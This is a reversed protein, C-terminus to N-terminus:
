RVVVALGRSHGSMWQGSRGGHYHWRVIYRGPRPLSVLRSYRGAVPVTAVGLRHWGTAGAPRYEAVVPRRDLVGLTEGTLRFSGGAPVALATRSGAASITLPPIVFV